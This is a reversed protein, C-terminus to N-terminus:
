EHVAGTRALRRVIIQQRRRDIPFWWIIPVTILTLIAPLVPFALLLGFTGRATQEPLTPDFGFYSAVALGLAVGLGEVGKEVMTQSAYYTGAYDGKFKWRGYDVIDALLAAPVVLGVSSVAFVLIFAVILWPEGSPGAPILLHGLQFLAALTYALAWTKQKGLDQERGVAM